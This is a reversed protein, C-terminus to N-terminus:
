RQKFHSHQCASKSSKLLIAECFCFFTWFKTWLTKLFCFQARSLVAAVVHGQKWAVFNNTIANNSYAKRSSWRYVSVKVNKSSKRIRSPRNDRQRQRSARFNDRAWRQFKGKFAVIDRLNVSSCSISNFVLLRAARTQLFMSWGPMDVLYIRSFHLKRGLSVIIRTKYSHRTEYKRIKHVQRRWM